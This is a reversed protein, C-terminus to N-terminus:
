KSHLALNNVNALCPIILISSLYAFSMIAMVDAQKEIGFTEINCTAIDIIDKAYKDDINIIGHKALTFLKAKCELYNEFTPHEKPGIHDPSICYEFSKSESPTFKTQM